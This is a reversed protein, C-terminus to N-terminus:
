AARTDSRAGGFAEAEADEELDQLPAADDDPAAPRAPAQKVLAALRPRDVLTVQKQVVQVLGNRVFRTLVRSVTETSMGLHDAIDVRDMPLVFGDGGAALRASLELLFLGVRQATSKRGLLLIHNQARELGALASRIVQEGLVLDVHRSRRLRGADYAILTSDTVTQATVRHVGGFELGFIDGPLYFADILRVGDSLVRCTRVCGSVVKYVFEVKNGELFIQAGRSVLRPTGGLGEKLAATRAPM